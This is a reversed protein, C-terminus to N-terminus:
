YVGVTESFHLVMQDRGQEDQLWSKLYGHSQFPEIEPEIFEENVAGDVGYKEMDSLKNVLLRHNQDLKEWTIKIALDALETSKFQIFLYGKSKGNELPM